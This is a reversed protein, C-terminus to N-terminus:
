KPEGTEASTLRELAQYENALDTLLQSGQAEMVENVGFLVSLMACANLNLTDILEEPKLPPELDIGPRGHEDAQLLYRSLADTSPHADVSLESYFVYSKEIATKRSIGKPSLTDGKLWVKHDKMWQRLKSETEAEFEIRDDRRHRRQSLLAPARWRPSCLREYQRLIQRQANPRRPLRMSPRHRLIRRVRAYQDRFADRGATQQTWWVPIRADSLLFTLDALDAASQWGARNENSTVGPAVGARM